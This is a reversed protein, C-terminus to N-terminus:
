VSFPILSVRLLMVDQIDKDLNQKDLITIGYKKELEGLSDCIYRPLDITVRMSDYGQEFYNKYIEKSLRSGFEQLEHRIRSYRADYEYVRINRDKLFESLKDMVKNTASKYSESYIEIESLFTYESSNVYCM